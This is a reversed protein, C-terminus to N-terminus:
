YKEYLEVMESVNKAHGLKVPFVAYKLLKVVNNYNYRVVVCNTNQPYYFIVEDNYAFDGEFYSIQGDENVLHIDGYKWISRLVDYNTYYKTLSRPIDSM